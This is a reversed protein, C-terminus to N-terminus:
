DFKGIRKVLQALLLSGAGFLGVWGLQGWTIPVLSLAERLIPVLFGIATLLICLVIAGWVWPNRTVANVFFSAQRGPMNFVNLLQGFILTYFAMNNVVADELELYKARFFTIGIVAATISLGYVLVAIWFQHILIPEDASRPPHRCVERPYVPGTGM